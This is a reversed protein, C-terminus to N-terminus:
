LAGVIKRYADESFAKLTTTRVSGGSALALGFAAMAEDNPAELIAVMDTSGMTMYFERWECGYKKALAKAADVRNPSEKINKIGHDTWNALAIYIAM